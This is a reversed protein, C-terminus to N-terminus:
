RRVEVIEHLVYVVQRGTTMVATRIYREVHKAERNPRTLFAPPESVAIPRHYVFGQDDILLAGAHRLLRKDRKRRRCEPSACDADSPPETDM